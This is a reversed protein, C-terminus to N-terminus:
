EGKDVFNNFMKIAETLNEAEGLISWHERYGIVYVVFYHGMNSAMGQVGNHFLNYTNKKM